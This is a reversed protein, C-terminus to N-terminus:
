FLKSIRKNSPVATSIEGTEMQIFKIKPYRRLSIRESKIYKFLVPLGKINQFKM